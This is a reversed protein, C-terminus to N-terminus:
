IIYLNEQRKGIIKGGTKTVLIMEEISGGNKIAIRPELTYISNEVLKLNTRKSGKASILAGGGHVSKGVSHGTAHPYNPYKELIKNRVVEDIKYANIGPKLKEMGMTVSEMLTNFVKLINEPATNEDPKLVYGMRQMDTYLIEDDEFTVKLGFDFYVTNGKELKLNSPISHGGKELNDGLLVIPCNDWAFDYAKFNYRNKIKNMYEVTINQTNKAIEIETQGVKINKFTIELIDHTINALLDLRKIQKENYTSILEYINKESSGKRFGKNNKKYIKRLLRNIKLYSGYSIINTNEDSMTTYSFLIKSPFELEKLINELNNLFENSNSYSYISCNQSKLDSVNGEDLKHVLLYSKKNSVIIFASSSIKDTIYDKFIKDSNENNEMVWITDQAKITKIIKEM